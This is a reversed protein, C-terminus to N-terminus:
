SVEKRWKGGVDAELVWYVTDVTRKILQGAM